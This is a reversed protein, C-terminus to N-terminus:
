GVCYFDYDDLRENLGLSFIPIQVKRIRVGTDQFTISYLLDNEFDVEVVEFLVM